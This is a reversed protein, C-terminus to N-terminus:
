KPLGRIRFLDALVDIVKPPSAADVELAVCERTYKM